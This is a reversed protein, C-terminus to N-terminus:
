NYQYLENTEDGENETLCIRNQSLSFWWTYQHNREKIVVGKGIEVSYTKNDYSYERILFINNDAINDYFKITYKKNKASPHKEYIIITNYRTSGMPDATVPLLDPHFM